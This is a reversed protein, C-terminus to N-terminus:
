ASAFRVRYVKGAELRVSEGPPLVRGALAVAAIRQGDPARLRHVRTLTARLTAGTAKGGAWALDVEVGGRARLGKVSGAPWAAPLAPLFEIAGDHSQLLMEAMAACAGFNGDIQFISTKGAPHTDFLNVGTSHELLKEISEWARDGDQLRAWFGIAWARSWGTYAGGAALRRELSVRSAKALEPTKRPTIAAGPYLPYMHSMHRQGPEPEGFDKEWEQLQGHKGIRYPPLRKRAAALKNRFPADVGLTKAAEICNDFLEAILAIDMTCGASTQARKGDSPAAFSNETSFSPCTTLQGQKNEILFALCFEASGKMLPYARLRLFERDGGFLWREWLHACFWPGSMPWNAWTPGGGGEGVPAAQRWLDVNHHSVWGPLGYNVRATDAGNKALEAVLDFLPEHCEALNCTEAPWYNMQANINATWNSSWPPRIEYSWVGQLNAPQTGPRSSTILLYRGYQFYLAALAPSRQRLFEDTPVAAAQGLWLSVRRFLRQHSAIHDRRLRAYGKSAAADLTRRCRAALESAPADPMRDFGRFGTAAAILLTVAKAGRVVIRDGEAKVSGNEAIVRLAAEFRMGKGEAPDYVVPTKSTRKYNPDVHAAAKGVLRLTAGEVTATSPIQSSLTATFGVPGSLRVVIVQDVASVFAERTLAGCRAAAIATDLDLSRRYNAADAEADFVLKLDGLPQYSQNFPGQMKRCLADAEHYDERELVARRVEPLADKAAPNNCDKPHGSWLTDENLQLREESVGGFVMAGLRGNGIPLAEHWAAAPARYWLTLPNPPADAAPSPVAPSFAAPAAALFQRRSLPM